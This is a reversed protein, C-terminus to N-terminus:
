RYSNVYKRVMGVIVVVIATIAAIGNILQVLDAEVIELGAYRGLAIFFPILAILVGKITLSLNDPNGSSGLVPYKRVIKM